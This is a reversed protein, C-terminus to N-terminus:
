LWPAVGERAASFRAIMDAAWGLGQAGLWAATFPVGDPRELVQDMRAHDRPSSAAVFALAVPGLGLDFLRNGLRSQVYYDRKPTARAIMEIQRANLGFGEYTPRLQPEVAQPSPLFIRTPCSEVIAPAITSRQIDALSQTAFVM